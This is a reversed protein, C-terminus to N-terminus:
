HIVQYEMNDMQMHGHVQGIQGDTAMMLVMQIQQGDPLHHEQNQVVQNQLQLQRVMTSHMILLRDAEEM